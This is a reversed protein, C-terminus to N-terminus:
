ESAMRASRRASNPHDHSGDRVDHRHARARRRREGVQLGRGDRRREFLRAHRDHAAGRDVVVVRRELPGQRGVVPQRDHDRAGAPRRAVDDPPHERANGARPEHQALPKEARELLAVPPEVPRHRAPRLPEREQWLTRDHPGGRLALRAPEELAALAGEGDQRAVATEARRDLLV